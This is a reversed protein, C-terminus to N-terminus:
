FFYRLQGTYTNSSLSFNLHNNFSGLLLANLGVEWKNGLKYGTKIQMGLWGKPFSIYDETINEDQMSTKRTYTNKSYFAFHYAAGLGLYIKRSDNRLFNYLVALSPAINSQQVEYSTYTIEPSGISMKRHGEARHSASTYSLELRFILDQLNRSASIDMGATAFPVFSGSFAMNEFSPYNGSLRLVSYGGGAGAFFHTLIKATSKEEMYSSGLAENIKKVIKVLDSEKYDTRDIQNLLELSISRTSELLLKLQKIYGRQTFMETGRSSVRYELEEFGRDTHIYFHNKADTFMYLEVKGDYLLRRLWVTDTSSLSESEPLLDPVKVPRNDKNVIARAYSDQGAIAFFPIDKVQYSTSSKLVSDPFFDFSIPNKRWNKYAIWGQLTDGANNVVLAKKRVSQAHLHLGSSVLLILFFATRKM